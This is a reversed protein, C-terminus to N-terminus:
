KGRQPNGTSVSIDSGAEAVQSQSGIEVVLLSAVRDEEMATNEWSATAPIPTPPDAGIVVRAPAPTSERDSTRSNPGSSPGRNQTWAPTSDADNNERMVVDLEMETDAYESGASNVAPTRSKTPTRTQRSSTVQANAQQQPVYTSTPRPISKPNRSGLNRRHTRSQSVVPAATYHQIEQTAGVDPESQYDAVPTLSKTRARTQRPSTPQDRARSRLVYTEDLPDSSDSDSGEDEAQNLIEDSHM